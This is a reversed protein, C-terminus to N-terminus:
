GHTAVAKSAEYEARQLDLQRGWEIAAWEVRRAASALEEHAADLKARANGVQTARDPQAGTRVFYRFQLRHQSSIVQRDDDAYTEWEGRVGGRNRDLETYDGMSFMLVATEVEAPILRHHDGGGQWYTDLLVLGTPQDEAIAVGERCWRPDHRSPDPTYTVVDGARLTQLDAM